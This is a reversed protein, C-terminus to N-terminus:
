TFLSFSYVNKFPSRAASRWSGSTIMTPSIRSGSVALVAIVADRVPCKTSEVSWVLEAAPTIGRKISRPMLGFVIAEASM